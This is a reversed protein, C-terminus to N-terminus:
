QGPSGSRLQGHRSTSPYSTSSAPAAATTDGVTGTMDPRFMRMRGTESAKGLRTLQKRKM